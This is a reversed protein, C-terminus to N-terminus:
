SELRAKLAAIEEDKEAVQRYLQLKSFSGADRADVLLQRMEAACDSKSGTPIMDCPMWGPFKPHTNPTPKRADANHDLLTM